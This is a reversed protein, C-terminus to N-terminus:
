WDSQSCRVVYPGNFAASREITRVSSQKNNNDINTKKQVEVNHTDNHKSMETKKTM